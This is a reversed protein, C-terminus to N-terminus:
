TMHCTVCEFCVYLVCSYCEDVKTTTEMYLDVFKENICKRFLILNLKIKANM